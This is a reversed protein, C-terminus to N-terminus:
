EGAVVRALPHLPAHCPPVGVGHGGAELHVHKYSMKLSSKILVLILSDLSPTVLYVVSIDGILISDLLTFILLTLFNLIFGFNSNNM